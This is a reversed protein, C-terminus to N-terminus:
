VAVAPVPVESRGVLGRKPCALVGADGTGLGRLWGAMRESLLEVRGDPTLRGVQNEPAELAVTCKNIRGDARILLSNGRAAYCVSEEIGVIHLPIGRDRADALVRRIAERGPAESLVPLTADSPGGWRGLLKPFLRFRPDLGLDRAMRDLFEPLDELNDERVHLRVLIQYDLDLARIAKLHEWLRAFSGQGSQRVRYADHQEPPGDFTIQYKRVGLRHLTRFLGATLHWGNTTMDSRVTLGPCEERLRGVHRLLRLVVDAAALPEGGFWSLDLMRLGGSRRTLLAEVGAVVAESMRGLRFDEYCYRCRFNCAETPLLILQLRDNGLIDSVLSRAPV